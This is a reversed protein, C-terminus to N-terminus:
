SERVESDVYKLNFGISFTVSYKGKKWNKQKHYSNNISSPMYVALLPFYTNLFIVPAQHIVSNDGQELHQYFLAVSLTRTRSELVTSSQLRRPTAAALSLESRGPLMAGTECV